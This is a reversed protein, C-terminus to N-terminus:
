HRGRRSRFREFMEQAKARNRPDRAYSSAKETLRRGQPGRFFESIKTFLAGM